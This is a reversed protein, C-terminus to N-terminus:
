NDKYIGSIDIFTNRLTTKSGPKWNQDLEPSTLYITCHLNKASSIDFRKSLDIHHWTGSLPNEDTFFKPLVEKYSVVGSRGKGECQIVLMMNEDIWLSDSLKVDASFRVDLYKMKADPSILKERLFYHRRAGAASPKQAPTVCEVLEKGQWTYLHSIEMKQLAGMTCLRNQLYVYHHVYKTAKAFRLMKQKLDNDFIETFKLNEDMQFVGGYESLFYQNYVLLNLIRGYDLLTMKLKPNFTSSTDLGDGMWHVKEPMPIGYTNALLQCLSPVIDNHSVLNSFKGTRKLLPSWIILPVHYSSLANQKNLGTAHDGTIVFITNEFDGRLRYQAFFNRLCDDTYLIAAQRKAHPLYEKKVEARMGQYIKQIRQHYTNEIKENGLDLDEHSTITIFLNCLPKTYPKKNLDQMSKEFFQADHYGWSNRQQGRPFKQSEAFLPAMYDTNEEILYDSVCDFGLDSSAYVNTQFDANHLISLLSHHQPMRGFQFGKPGYPLSGTIAPVAGFSRPTTSLCNKWYLGTQALSDIFPTFSVGSPNDGSWERGLSEVIVFVVNPSTCIPQFFPSLVDEGDNARELPYTKDMIKRNPFEQLYTDIMAENWEVTGNKQVFSPGFERSARLNGIASKLCFWSKNVVYNAADPSRDGQEIARTARLGLPSILMLALLFFTLLPVNIKKCYFISLLVFVALLLLALFVAGAFPMVGSVAGFIESLPRLFIEDQMLAGTCHTFVTFGVEALLLTAMLAISVGIAVKEKWWRLLAYLPLLALAYVFCVVLNYLVQPLYTQFFHLHHSSFLAVTDVVKLVFIGTLFAIFVAVFPRFFRMIEDLKGNKLTM